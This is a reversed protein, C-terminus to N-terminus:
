AFIRIYAYRIPFSAGSTQTGQVNAGSLTILMFAANAQHAIRQATGSKLINAYAGYIIRIKDRM